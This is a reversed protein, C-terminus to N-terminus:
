PFSNSQKATLLIRIRSVASLFTIVCYHPHHMIAQFCVTKLLTEVNLQSLWTALLVFFFLLTCEMTLLSTDPKMFLEHFSVTRSIPHAVAWIVNANFNKPCEGTNRAPQSFFFSLLATGRLTWEGSHGRLPSQSHLTFASGFSLGCPGASATIKSVLWM